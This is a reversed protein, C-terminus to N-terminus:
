EDDMNAKVCIMCKFCPRVRVKDMEMDTRFSEWVKKYRLNIQIIFIVIIIMM